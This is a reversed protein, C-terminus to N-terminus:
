SELKNCNIIENDTAEYVNATAITGGTAAAAAVCAAYSLGLDFPVMALLVGCGVVGAAGGLAGGGVVAKSVRSNAKVNAICQERTFAQASTSLILTFLVFSIILKNTKM